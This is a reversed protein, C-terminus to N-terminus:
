DFKERLRRNEVYWEVHGSSANPRWRDLNNSRPLRRQLHKIITLSQLRHTGIRRDLLHLIFLHRPQSCLPQPLQLFLIACSSSSTRRALSGFFIGELNELVMYLQQQAGPANLHRLCWNCHFTSWWLLEQLQGLSPSIPLSAAINNAIVHNRSM